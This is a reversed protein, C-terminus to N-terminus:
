IARSRSRSTFILFFERSNELFSFRAPPQQMLVAETLSQVETNHDDIKKSNAEEEPADVDSDMEPDTSVEVDEADPPSGVPEEARGAAVEQDESPEDGGVGELDRGLAVRVIERELENVRRGEVVTLRRHVDRCEQLEKESMMSRNDNLPHSFLREKQQLNSKSQAIARNKADVEAKM